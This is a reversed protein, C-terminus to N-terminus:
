RSCATFFPDIEQLTRGVVFQTGPDSRKRNETGNRSQAATRRVGEKVTESFQLFPPPLTRTM